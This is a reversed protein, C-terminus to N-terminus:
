REVLASVLLAAGGTDAEAGSALAVGGVSAPRLRDLAWQLGRDAVAVDHARYLALLVGAHRVDNYEGLDRGDHTSLYLFTGDARQHRALWATARDVATHMAAPTPTTCGEPSALTLRLVALIVVYTSAIRRM